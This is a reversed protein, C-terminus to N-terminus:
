AKREAQGAAHKATRQGTRCAHTCAPTSSEILPKHDLRPRHRTTWPCKRSEVPGHWVTLSALEKLTLMRRMVVEECRLQLVAACRRHHKIM